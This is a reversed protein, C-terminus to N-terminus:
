FLFNVGNVQSKLIEYEQKLKAYLSDKTEKEQQLKNIIDEKEQIDRKLNRIQNLLTNIEGNFKSTKNKSEKTINECKMRYESISELLSHTKASLTDREAKIEEHEQLQKKLEALEKTLSKIDRVLNSNEDVLINRKSSLDELKKELERIIIEQSENSPKSFGLSGDTSPKESKKTEPEPHKLKM